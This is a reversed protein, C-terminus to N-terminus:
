GLEHEAEFLLLSWLPEPDPPLDAPLAGLGALERRLRAVRELQAAGSPRHVVEARYRNWAETIRRFEAANPGAWVMEADGVVRFFVQGGVGVVFEYDPGGYYSGRAIVDGDAAELMKVEVPSLRRRRVITINM